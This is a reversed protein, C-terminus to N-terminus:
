KSIKLLKRHKKVRPKNDYADRLYIYKATLDQLLSDSHLRRLHEECIDEDKEKLIEKLQLITDQLFQNSQPKIKATSVNQPRLCLSIGSAIFTGIIVTYIMKKCFSTLNDKM